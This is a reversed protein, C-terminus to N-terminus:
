WLMEGLVVDGGRVMDSGVVIDGVVVMDSSVMEVVLWFCGSVMKMTWNGGVVLWFYRPRMETEGTVM